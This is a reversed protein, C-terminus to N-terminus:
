IWALVISCILLQVMSVRVLATLVPNMLGTFIM